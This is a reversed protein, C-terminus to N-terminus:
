IAGTPGEKCRSLIVLQAAGLTASTNWGVAVERAQVETTNVEWGHKRVTSRTPRGCTSLVPLRFILRRTFSLATERFKDLKITSSTQIASLRDAKRAPTASHRVRMIRISWKTIVLSISM